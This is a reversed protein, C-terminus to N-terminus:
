CTQHILLIFKDQLPGTNIQQLKLWGSLTWKLPLSVELPCPAWLFHMVPFISYRCPEQLIVGPEPTLSLHDKKTRKSLILSLCQVWTGSIEWVCSGSIFTDPASNNWIHFVGCGRLLFNYPSSCVQKHCGWSFKNLFEMRETFTVNSVKGM